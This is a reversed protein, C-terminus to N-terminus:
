SLWTRYVHTQTAEGLECDRTTLQLTSKGTNIRLKGCPIMKSHSEIVFAMARRRTLSELAQNWLKSESKHADESAHELGKCAEAEFAAVLGATHIGPVCNM